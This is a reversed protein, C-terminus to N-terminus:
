LIPIDKLLLGYSAGGWSDKFDNDSMEVHHPVHVAVGAGNAVFANNTGAVTPYM